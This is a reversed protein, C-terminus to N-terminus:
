GKIAGQDEVAIVTAFDSPAKSVDNSVTNNSVTIKGDFMDKVM